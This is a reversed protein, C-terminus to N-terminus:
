YGLRFHAESDAAPAHSSASPHPEGIAGAGLKIMRGLGRYLAANIDTVEAWNISTSCDGM